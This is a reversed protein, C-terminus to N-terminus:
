PTGQSVYRFDYGSGSASILRFMDYHTPGMSRDTTLTVRAQALYEDSRVAVSARQRETLALGQMIPQAWFSALDEFPKDLLVRQAKAQDLESFVASLLVASVQNVNVVLEPGPMVAIYPAWAQYVTADYGPWERLESVHVLPRAQGLGASTNGLGSGIRRTSLWQSLEDVARPDLNLAVTLREFVSQAFRRQNPDPHLLANLNFRGGLDMLRGQIVGGPIPYAPTWAESTPRANQGQILAPWQDLGRQALLAMGDSLANIKARDVVAQTRAVSRSAQEVMAIGLVSALAVVALTILLAM